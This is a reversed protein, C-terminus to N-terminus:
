GAPRGLAFEHREHWRPAVYEILHVAEVSALIPLHAALDSEIAGFTSEDQGHAVTLHPIVESFEGGYPPAQPWTGAIASTLAALPEAPEPALYLVDPFRAARAFRITFAGHAAILARLDSLVSAKLEHSPLFPALITVHAPVGAAASADFERRWRGVLPEAEPMAVILATENGRPGNAGDATM